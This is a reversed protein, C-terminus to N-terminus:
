IESPYLVASYGTKRFSNKCMVVIIDFRIRGCVDCTDKLDPFYLRLRVAHNIKGFLCRSCNM